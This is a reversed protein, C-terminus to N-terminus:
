FACLLKWQFFVSPELPSKTLLQKPSPSCYFILRRWRLWMLFGSKETDPCNRLRSSMNFWLLTSYCYASYKLNNECKLSDQEWGECRGRAPKAQFLSPFYLGHAHICAVSQSVDKDWFSSRSIFPWSLLLVAQFTQQNEKHYIQHRKLHLM